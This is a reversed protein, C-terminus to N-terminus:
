ENIINSRGSFSTATSAHFSIRTEIEFCRDEAVGMFLKNINADEVNVGLVNIKSKNVQQKNLMDSTM